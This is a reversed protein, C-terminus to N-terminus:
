RFLEETPLRPQLFLNCSSNALQFTRQQGAVLSPAGFSTGNNIRTDVVRCPTVPVYVYAAPPM